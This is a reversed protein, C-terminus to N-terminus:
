LFLSRALQQTITSAGQRIKGSVLNTIAARVIGVFDLGRHEFFRADEIAVMANVLHRPIRDLPVLIRREVFFQGIVQNDASYVRTVLSPQYEHLGTLPPLDQLLYGVTALGAVFGILVVTFVSWLVAKGVSRRRPLPEFREAFPM